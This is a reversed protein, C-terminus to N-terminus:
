QAVGFLPVKGGFEPQQLYEKFKARGNECCKQLEAENFGAREIENFTFAMCHCYASLESIKRQMDPITKPAYSACNDQALWKDVLRLRKGRADSFM